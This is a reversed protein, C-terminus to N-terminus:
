QKLLKFGNSKQGIDVRLTSETFSHNQTEISILSIIIIIIFYEYNNHFFFIWVQYNNLTVAKLESNSERREVNETYLYLWAAQKGMGLCVASGGVSRGDM